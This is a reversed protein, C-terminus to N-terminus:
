TWRAASTSIVKYQLHKIKANYIVEENGGTTVFNDNRMLYLNNSSLFGDAVTNWSDVSAQTQNGNSDTEWKFTADYM